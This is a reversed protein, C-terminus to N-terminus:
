FYSQNTDRPKPLPNTETVSDDPVSSKLVANEAISNEVEKNQRKELEKRLSELCYDGVKFIKMLDWEIFLVSLIKDNLMAFIKRFSVQWGVMAFPFGTGQFNSYTASGFGTTAANSYNWESFSRFYRKLCWQSSISDLEGLTFGLAFTSSEDEARTVMKSWRKEM